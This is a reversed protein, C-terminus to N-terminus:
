RVLVHFVAECSCRIRRLPHAYCKNHHGADAESALLLRRVIAIDIVPFCTSWSISSRVVVLADPQTANTTVGPTKVHFREM